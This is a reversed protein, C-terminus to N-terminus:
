DRHKPELGVMAAVQDFIGNHPDGGIKGVVVHICEHLVVQSLYKPNKAAEPSISVVHYPRTDTPPDNLGISNPPVRIRSFGLSYRPEEVRRGVISEYAPVIQGMFSRAMPVLVTETAKRRSVFNKRWSDFPSLEEGMAFVRQWHDEVRPTQVTEPGVMGSSVIASTYWSEGSILFPFVASSYKGAHGGRLVFEFATVEGDGLRRFGLSDSICALDFCMSELGSNSGLWYERQSAWGKLGSKLTESSQSPPTFDRVLKRDLYVDRLSVVTKKETGDVVVVFAVPRGFREHVGVVKAKKGSHPRLAGVCEYSIEVDKGVMNHSRSFRNSEGGVPFESDTISFNASRM